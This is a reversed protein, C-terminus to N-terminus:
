KDVRTLLQNAFWMTKEGRLYLNGRYIQTDFVIFTEEPNFPNIPNDAKVRMGCLLENCVHKFIKTEM